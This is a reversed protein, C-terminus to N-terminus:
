LTEDKKYEDWNTFKSNSQLDHLRHCWVGPNTADFDRDDIKLVANYGLQNIYPIKVSIMPIFRRHEVLGSDLFNEVHRVDMDLTCWYGQQLFRIILNDWTQYDKASVPNYSHNAGFYLHEIPTGILSKDAIASDINEVSQAGVIFLTPKGYMATQEVEKGIFFSVNEHNPRKM